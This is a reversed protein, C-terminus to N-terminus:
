RTLTFFMRALRATRQNRPVVGMRQRRLAAFGGRAYCDKLRALTAVPVNLAFAARRLSVGEGEMALAARVQMERREAEMLDRVEPLELMLRQAARPVRLRYSRLRPTLRLRQPTRPM